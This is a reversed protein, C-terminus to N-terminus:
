PPPVSEERAVHHSVRNEIVVHGDENAWPIWLMLIGVGLVSTEHFAELNADLTSPNSVCSCMVAAPAVSADLHHTMMTREGVVTDATPIIDVIVGEQCIREKTQRICTVKSIKRKRITKGSISQLFEFLRQNAHRM